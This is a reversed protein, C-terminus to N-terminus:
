EGMDDLVAQIVAESLRYGSDRLAYLLPRAALILGKRKALGVVAATGTFRLRRARAEARGARDDIVLLAGSLQCALRIASAEGADVGSGLPQWDDSDADLTRIWGSELAALLSAKGVYDTMPLIEARIVSTILVEGFVGRLLDLQQIHSLAILPGADAIVVSMRKAAVM